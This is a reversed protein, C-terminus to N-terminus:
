RYPERYLVLSLGTAPLAINEDLGIRKRSNDSNNPFQGWGGPAGSDKFLRKRIMAWVKGVGIAILHIAGM